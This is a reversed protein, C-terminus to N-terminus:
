DAPPPATEGALPVVALQRYNPGGPGLTSSFLTLSRVSVSGVATKGVAELDRSILALAGPPIARPRRARVLTVHPRYPGPQPTSDLIRRVDKSLDSAPGAGRGLVAWVMQARRLDPVAAAGSLRMSFSTHRKGVRQLRAIWDDLAADPVAGAFAVTIHLLGDAVWKEDAWRPALARLERGASVLADVVEAPLEIAIFCREPV